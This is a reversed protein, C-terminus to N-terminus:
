FGCIEGTPFCDHVETESFFVRDPGQLYVGTVQTVTVTKSRWVNKRVRFSHYHTTTTTFLLLLTKLCLLWLSVGFGRTDAPSCKASTRLHQKHFVKKRELRMGGRWWCTALVRLSSPCCVCSCCQPCRLSPFCTFGPPSRCDFCWCFFQMLPESM